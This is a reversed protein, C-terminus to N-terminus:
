KKRKKAAERIKAGAARNKKASVVRTKNNGKPKNKLPTVHDVDKGDGKSVKGERTAKRRAKNRSARAKKRAETGDYAREKVTRAKANKKTEGKKAM